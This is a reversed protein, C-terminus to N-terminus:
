LTRDQQNICSIFESANEQTNLHIHGMGDYPHSLWWPQLEPHSARHSSEKANSM